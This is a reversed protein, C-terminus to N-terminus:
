ARAIRIPGVFFVEDEMDGEGSADGARSEEWGGTEAPSFTREDPPLPSTVRWIPLERSPEADRMEVLQQGVEQMVEFNLAQRFGSIKVIRKSGQSDGEITKELRRM